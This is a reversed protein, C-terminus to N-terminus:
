KRNECMLNFKIANLLLICLRDKELDKSIVVDIM